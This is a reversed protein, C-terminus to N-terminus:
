MYILRFEHNIVGCSSEPHSAKRLRYQEDYKFWGQSRAAALRIDRMYKLMEQARTRFKELMVSMFIMFADTWKDITLYPGFNSKVICLKGDRIQIEGQGGLSNNIEKASKLLLSLDIFQGERIKQKLKSPVHQGVNDFCSIEPVPTFDSLNNEFKGMNPLGFDDTGSEHDSADSPHQQPLPADHQIAETQPETYGLKSQRQLHRPKKQGRGRAPSIM